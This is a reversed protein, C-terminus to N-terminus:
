LVWPVGPVLVCLHTHQNSQSDTEFTLRVIRGQSFVHEVDVSM